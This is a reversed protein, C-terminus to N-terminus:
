RGLATYVDTSGGTGTWVLDDRGDGNVDGTFAYALSIWNANASHTQPAARFDFDGGTTGYGVVLTNATSRRSLVIDARGDGNVDALFSEAPMSMAVTVYPRPAFQGGGGNVSRHVFVSDTRSAVWVLDDGNRGDIDGVKFEYDDWGGGTRSVLTPAIAYSAASLATTGLVYSNNYTPGVANIVVDAQGDADFHGVAFSQYGAYNGTLTASTTVMRVTGDAQGLAVYTRTQGASRINWVIDDRGDDNMDAALARYNGWGGAIVMPATAQLSGNATSLAVYVVNVNGLKNFALDDRGDGDVDLAIPAYDGWDTPADPVDLDVPPRLDFSGDTRALAFHIRNLAPTDRRENYALDMRGDGNFDGAVVARQLDPLWAIGLMQGPPFSFAGTPQPGGGGSGPDTPGTDSSSCACLCAVVFAAALRLVPDPRM